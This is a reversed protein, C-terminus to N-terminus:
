DTSADAGWLRPEVSERGNTEQDVIQEGRVGLGSLSERRASEVFLRGLALTSVRIAWSGQFTEANESWSRLLVALATSSTSETSPPVPAVTIPTEELLKLTGEFQTELLYALPIILSQQFTQYMATPIREVM